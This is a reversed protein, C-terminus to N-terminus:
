RPTASLTGFAFVSLREYLAAISDRTYDYQLIPLTTRINEYALYVAEYHESKVVLEGNESKRKAWNAFATQYPPLCLVVVPRVHEWMVQEFTESMTDVGRLIPGYVRESLHFRDIILSEGSTFIEHVRERCVDDFSEGKGPASFHMYRYGMLRTLGVALTSKGAGDPGELIVVRPLAKM